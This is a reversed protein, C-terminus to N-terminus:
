NDDIVTILTIYNTTWDDDVYKSMTLYHSM